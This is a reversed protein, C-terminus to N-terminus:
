DDAADSTYLLCTAYNSVVLVKQHPARHRCADVVGLGNGQDLFLDVIALDWNEGHKRLWTVAEDEGSAHAVVTADAIEELFGVLNDRIIPNDEVLYTKFTM